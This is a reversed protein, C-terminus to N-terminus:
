RDYGGERALGIRLVRITVIALVASYTTYTIATGLAVGNIGLGMRVFTINLGPNVLVAFGQVAMYYVQKGVTNLFNVFGGGAPPLPFGIPTAAIGLTNIPLVRVALNGSWISPRMQVDERPPEKLIKGPLGSYGSPKQEGETGGLM